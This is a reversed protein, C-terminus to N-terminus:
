IAFRGLRYADVIGTIWLLLIIVSLASILGPSFLGPASEIQERIALADLSINGDLIQQSIYEAKHISELLIVALCALTTILVALGRKMAGLIFYGAGPFVLVAFVIAKTSKKM